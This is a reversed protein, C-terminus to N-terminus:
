NELNNSIGAINYIGASIISTTMHIHMAFSFKQNQKSIIFFYYFFIMFAVAVFLTCANLAVEKV